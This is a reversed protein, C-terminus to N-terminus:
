RIRVGETSILEAGEIEAGSQLAKKLEIKDVKSPQPILYEAPLKTEDTVNVKKTAAIAVSFTGAKVKNQGTQQLYLLLAAKMREIGNEATKKRAALRDSEAKLMEYDAQLQKIIQCYSEIKEAAGMENLNDELTQEDIEEAQLLEYLAAAHQTMEYLTM